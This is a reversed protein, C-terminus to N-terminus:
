VFATVRISWLLHHPWCLDVRKFNLTIIIHVSFGHRRCNGALRIFYFSKFNFATSVKPISFIVIIMFGEKTVLLPSLNITYFLTLFPERQLSTTKLFVLLKGHIHNRSKLNLIQPRSILCRFTCLKTHCPHKKRENNDRLKLSRSLEFKWLNTIKLM